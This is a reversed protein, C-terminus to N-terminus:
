NVETLELHKRDLTNKPSFIAIRYSVFFSNRVKERSEIDKLLLLWEKVSFVLDVTPWRQWKSRWGRYGSSRSWRTAAGEEEVLEDLMKWPIASLLQTNWLLDNNRQGEGVDIRLLDWMGERTRWESSIEISLHIEVPLKCRPHTRFQRHHEFSGRELPSSENRSTRRLITSAHISRHFTIVPFASSNSRISRFSRDRQSNSELCLGVQIKVHVHEDIKLRRTTSAYSIPPQDLVIADREIDMLQNWFPQLSDILDHFSQIIEILRSTKPCWSEIAFDIPLQARCRPREQPWQQPIDIHLDHARDGM